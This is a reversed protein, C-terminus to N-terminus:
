FPGTAMNLYRARLYQMGLSKHTYERNYGYAAAQTRVYLSTSDAGYPSRSGDTGYAYSSIGSGWVLNAVSGTGTYYYIGASAGRGTM